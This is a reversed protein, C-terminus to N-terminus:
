RMTQITAPIATTMRIAAMMRTATMTRTVDSILRIATTMRTVATMRTATMTRTAAVVLRIATKM